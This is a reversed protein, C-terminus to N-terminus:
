HKLGILGNVMNKFVSLHIGIFWFGLTEAIVSFNEEM